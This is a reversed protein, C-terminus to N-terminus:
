IITIYLICCVNIEAFYKISVFVLSFISGLSHACCTKQLLQEDEGFFIDCSSSADRSSSSAETCSQARAAKAM